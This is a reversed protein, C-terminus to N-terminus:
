KKPDVVAPAKKGRAAPAGAGVVAAQPSFYRTVLVADDGGTRKWVDVVFAPSQPASREWLFSVVILEGHDHVAMQRVGDSHAAAAKAQALWEERPVPVGPQAQERQEFLPDLLPDLAAADGSRMAEILRAEADGFIKMGRTMTPVGRGTPRVDAAAAPGAGVLTLALALAAPRRIDRALKARLM